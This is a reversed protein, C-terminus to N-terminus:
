ATLTIGDCFALLRKLTKRIFLWRKGASWGLKHQQSKFPCHGDDAMSWASSTEMPISM